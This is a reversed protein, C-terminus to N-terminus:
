QENLIETANMLYISKIPDTSIIEDLKSHFEHLYTCHVDTSNITGKRQLTVGPCGGGCSNQVNCSSCSPNNSSFREKLTKVVESNTIVDDFSTAIIDEINGYSWGELNFFTDCPYLNGNVDMAVLDTGAGCPFSQCMYGTNGVAFAKIPRTISKDIIKHGSSNLKIITEALHVHNEVMSLQWSELESQKSYVPLFITNKFGIKILNELSNVMSSPEVVTVQCSTEPFKQLLYDLNKEIKDYSSKGNLIPRNKDQQEKSGDLSIGVIVNHEFLWDVKEQTLLLGNTQIGFSINKVTKANSLEVYSVFWTILDWKILPEGGHFQFCIDTKYESTMIWDCFMSLKIKELDIYEDRSGLTDFYVTEKYCYPCSLNCKNTLDISCLLYNSVM